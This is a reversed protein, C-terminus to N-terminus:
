NIVFPEFFIYRMKFNAICDINMAFNDLAVLFADLDEAAGHNGSSAAADALSEGDAPNDRTFADFSSERKMRRDDDIYLCGAASFGSSCFKIIQALACALCYFQRLFEAFVGSFGHKLFM